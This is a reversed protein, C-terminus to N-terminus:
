AGAKGHWHLQPGEGPPPTYLVDGRAIIADAGGYRALLAEQESFVRADTADPDCVERLRKLGEAVVAACEPRGALDTLEIPDRDLDFLEPAHGVYHIYKWHSWRVMYCGSRSGMAHYESILTRQNADIAEPRWLSRSPLRRDHETPAIGTAELASAYIDVLSVPADSRSGPPVDPGAVIMPIAVAEEYMVSKGWLGRRGINDGHDTSYVVRTSDTLGADDLARLVAGIQDDVFAVLAYYSAIARRIHSTDKFHDGYNITESLEEVWPHRERRGGTYFDPVVMRDPDFLDYYKKPVTLPYHPRVFSVMLGWPASEAADARARIWDVAAAAVNRDFDNYSCEGPGVGAALAPMAARPPPPPRRISGILDGAGNNMMHMTLIEESFGNDDQTSRFHLKGIAAMDGGADRIRAHWSPVEGHFAFANDWYGLKNVWDGAALAGRAPVCIPSPTYANDFVRGRRALADINPTIALPNGYCGAVGRQHEDSIILLFNTPKM